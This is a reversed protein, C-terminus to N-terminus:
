PNFITVNFATKKNGGGRRSRREKELDKESESDEGGGERELYGESESETM